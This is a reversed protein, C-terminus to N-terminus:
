KLCHEHANLQYSIGQREGHIQAKIYNIYTVYM